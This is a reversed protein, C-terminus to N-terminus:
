SRAGVFRDPAFPRAEDPVPEGHVQRAVAEATIPSFLVGHRYHGMAVTIGDALRGVIPANDPTGPRLGAATEVLEAEDLGPLLEYAADLLVRTAGATVTTDFGKEESTAGVVIEGSPRPVVYVDLGRVTRSPFVGTGTARLRLIQGKVPRVPLEILGSDLLITPCWAGTAVVVHDADHRHGTATNVGDSDVSVVRSSAFGVGASAAARVLASLYARNDVQHDDPMWLGGRIAPSLAPEIRRADRSSVVQSGLGQELQVRHLPQLLALEDRDRAVVITGRQTYGPDVGSATALASSWTPWRAAAAVGLRTIAEEGQYAEAVPALMGGAVWSAGGPTEADDIRVVEDGREALRWAASLGIVGGGVVVVRM